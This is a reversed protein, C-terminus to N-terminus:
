ADQWQLGKAQNKLFRDILNQIFPMGFQIALSILLGLIPTPILSTNVGAKALEGLVDERTPRKKGAWSLKPPTPVVTNNGFVSSIAAQIADYLQGLTTARDGFLKLLNMVQSIANNKLLASILSIFDGIGSGHNIMIAEAPSLLPHDEEPVVAVPEPDPKVVPPIPPKVDKDTVNTTNPESM